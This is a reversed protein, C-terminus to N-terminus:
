MNLDVGFADFFNARVACHFTAKLRLGQRSHLNVLHQWSTEALTEPGSRANGSRPRKNKRTRLKIQAIPITSAALQMDIEEPARRTPQERPAQDDVKWYSPRMRDMENKLLGKLARDTGREDCAQLHEYRVGRFFDGQFFCATAGGSADPPISHTSVCM